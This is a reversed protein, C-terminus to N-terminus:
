TINTFCISGDDGVFFLVTKYAKIPPIGVMLKNIPPQHRQKVLMLRLLIELSTSYKDLDGPIVLPIDGLSELHLFYGM